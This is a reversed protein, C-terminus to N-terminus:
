ILTLFPVINDDAWSIIIMYIHGPLIINDPLDPLFVHYEFNDQCLAM